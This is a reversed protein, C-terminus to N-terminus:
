VCHLTYLMSLHISLRLPYDFDPGLAIWKLTKSYPRCTNDFPLMLLACLIFWDNVAHQSNTCNNTSFHNTRGRTLTRRRVSCCTMTAVNPNVLWAHPEICTDADVTPYAWGSHLLSAMNDSNTFSNKGVKKKARCHHPAPTTIQRCRPASKCIAWSIGSGSVWLQGHTWKTHGLGVWGM